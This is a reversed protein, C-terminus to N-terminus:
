KKLVRGLYWNLPIPDEKKIKKNDIGNTIWCTGYQSNKEGKLTISNKKSIKSKTQENHKKGKFTSHNFGSKKLGERVQNSFFSKWENDLHLQKVKETGLYLNKLGSNTFNKRHEDNWIRGGGDGGTKLNMCNINKLLDENVLQKEKEMLLERSGFFELIEIKFNEKGYKKLSHKLIKGSGLYGDNLNNTSHIGIYFKENLLNTTKYLFHYKKLKNTNVM